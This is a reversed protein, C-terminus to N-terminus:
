TSIARSRVYGKGGCIVGTFDLINGPKMKNKKKKLAASPDRKQYKM